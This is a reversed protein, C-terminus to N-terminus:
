RERAAIRDADLIPARRFTLVPRGSTRLTRETISGLLFHEIGRRGATAMVILDARQEAAVERIVEGPPGNRSVSAVHVHAGRVTDHVWADFREKERRESEAALEGGAAFYFPMEWAHVASVRGHTLQALALSVRLADASGPELDVPVLIRELAVHAIGVAPDFPVALVPVSSTRCIREAVSGLVVHALGSLGRTGTVVLDAGTARAHEVIARDPEGELYRTQAVGLAGALAALKQRAAQQSDVIVGPHLLTASNMLEPALSWVHVLEIQGHLKQALAVAYRAANAAPESFDTACVIRRFM